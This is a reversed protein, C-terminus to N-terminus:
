LPPAATAVFYQQIEFAPALQALQQPTMPHDRNEPKRFEVRDMAAKALATEISMVTKAEAAATQPNDGLLEFSKTVHRM